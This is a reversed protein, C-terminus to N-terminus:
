KSKILSLWRNRHLTKDCIKKKTERFLLDFISFLLNSPSDM